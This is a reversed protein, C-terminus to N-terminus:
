ELLIIIRDALQCHEAKIVNKKPSSASELEQRFSNLIADFNIQHAM